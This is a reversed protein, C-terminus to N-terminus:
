LLASVSTPLRCSLSCVVYANKETDYDFELISISGSLSKDEKSEGASEETDWAGPVHQASGSLKKGEYELRLRLFYIIRTKNRSQGVTMEEDGKDLITYSTIKASVDGEKASIGVLSKQFYNNTIENGDVYTWHWNGVNHNAMM